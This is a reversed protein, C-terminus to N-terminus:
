SSWQLLTYSRPPVEFKTRGGRTAPKDFPKPQVNQPAEFSNVAKLDNGTLVWSALVRTGPNDEWVIEIERAKSLDRNLIFLSTQGIEPNLTGAADLYPVPDMHLVEYTPSQVLLNLVRGRAFQLAWSYPYYITQRFLGTANTMIPAIVNILQALCAIKVRDANRLLTIILGGVLLADELNYVEELLHPAEQRNGNVAPGSRERYWVNWEDFSLWLKKPSRKHGRVLDCVALTEAIQRDMTLNLAVYKESNGGTEDPTNGFYRHLSLADVYDYCQEPVERDWELYTPMLPGSSGCAILQLSPDVYRIQRAADQAKLGYESATMHGIQWPGDMENGLCWRRVNYPVAFGHKRRLESWQTGKEVNCYEVLAAAREPTGTGLNLGMLPETGVVKCWAMFENTGFQNSELSNWAKDLVRPRDQQPGVGDLWNYGSVFNGEPYRVIPVGLKKVEDLVDKRFGNSDSLKSPPDYIGEHIARGLHELFSGFLNRDLPATTRRSDIFIRSPEASNSARMQASLVRGFVLNASCALGATGAQRLFLRRDASFM